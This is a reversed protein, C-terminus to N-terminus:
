CMIATSRAKARKRRNNIQALLYADDCSYQIRLDDSDPIIYWRHMM